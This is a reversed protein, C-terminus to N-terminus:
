PITTFSWTKTISADGAKITFAFNVKYTAGKALPSLPILAAFSTLLNGDANLSVGAGARLTPHALIASPVVNGAADKLEFATITAQQAAVAEANVYDANRVSVLIPTGTTTNPFLTASPRPSEYAVYFTDLVGTQGNYPYAVISGSPPVQGFANTSPVALDMVCMPIGAADQGFGVGVTSARSLLSVAHYV